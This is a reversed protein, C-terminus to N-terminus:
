LLKKHMKIFLVLEAAAMTCLLQKAVTDSRKRFTWGMFNVFM